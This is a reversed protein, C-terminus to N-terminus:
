IIILKRGEMRFKLKSAELVRLVNSLKVDRKIAGYFSVPTPEREYVVEIDYWRELQRLIEKVDLKSFQFLGDKWAIPNEQGGIEM